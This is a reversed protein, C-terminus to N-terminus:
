KVNKVEGNDDVRARNAIDNWLAGIIGLAFIPNRHAEGTTDVYCERRSKLMAGYALGILEGSRAENLLFELAEIADMAVPGKVITFPKM